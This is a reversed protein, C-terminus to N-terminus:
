SPMPLLESEADCDPWLSQQSSIPRRVFVLSLCREVRITSFRKSVYHTCLQWDRCGDIGATRREALSTPGYSKMRWLIQNETSASFYAIRRDSAQTVVFVRPRLTKTSSTIVEGAPEDTVRILLDLECGHARFEASRCRDHRM